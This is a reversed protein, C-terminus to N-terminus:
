IAQDRTPPSNEQIPWGPDQPTQWKPRGRLSVPLVALSKFSFLGSQAGNWRFRVGTDGPYEQM